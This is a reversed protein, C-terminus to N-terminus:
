LLSVFRKLAYYCLLMNTDYYYFNRTMEHDSDFNGDRLESLVECKDDWDVDLKDDPYWEEFAEQALEPYYQEKRPLMKELVYDASDISRRLWGLANDTKVRLIIEGIDGYVIITGPCIVVAFSYFGTSPKSCQWHEYGRPDSLVRTLIHDAYNAVAATAFQEHLRTIFPDM